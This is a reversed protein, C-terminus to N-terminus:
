EHVKVVIASFKGGPPVIMQHPTSPPIHVIDGAKLHHETGGVIKTGRPEDSAPNDQDPVTGGTILTVEGGRVIIVDAWHKHVEAGGSRTRVSTKIQHHADDSLDVGGSGAAKSKPDAFAQDLLEKIHETSYYEVHTFQPQAAQAHATYYSGAVAGIGAAATIGVAIALFKKM